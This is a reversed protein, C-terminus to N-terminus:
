TSNALMKAAPPTLGWVQTNSVTDFWQNSLFHLNAYKAHIINGSHDKISPSCDSSSILGYYSTILNKEPKRFNLHTLIGNSFLQDTNPNYSLSLLETNLIIQASIEFNQYKSRTITWNPIYEPESITLNQNEISQTQMANVDMLPFSAEASNATNHQNPIHEVKKCSCQLKTAYSFIKWLKPAVKTKYWSFHKIISWFLVIALVILTWFIAAM